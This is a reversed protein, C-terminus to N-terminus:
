NIGEIFDKMQHKTALVNSRMMQMGLAAVIMVSQKTEPHKGLDSVVSAYAQPNDGLKVLELARNKCWQLHEARTM